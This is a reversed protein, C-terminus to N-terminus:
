IDPTCLGSLSLIGLFRGTKLTEYYVSILSYILLMNTMGKNSVKCVASTFAYKCHKIRLTGKESEGKLPSTDIFELFSGRHARDWRTAGQSQSMANFFGIHAPTVDFLKTETRIAPHNWGRMAKPDAQQPKICVAAFKNVAQGFFSTGQFFDTGEIRVIIHYQCCLERWSVTLNGRPAKTSTNRQILWLELRMTCWCSRWINTTEIVETWNFHTRFGMFGSFIM